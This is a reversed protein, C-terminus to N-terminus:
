WKGETLVAESAGPWPPMTCIIFDLPENGTNRFQFSTGVPITLSMEAEVSVLEEMEEQKRWVEGKGSLFYWIEEVTQHYVAKSVHGVPLRCHAVDGSNMSHLLRIESKDPALYDYDNRLKKSAMRIIKM